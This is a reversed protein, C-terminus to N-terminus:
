REGHSTEGLTQALICLARHLRMRVTSLSIGLIQAAERYKLEEFRVLLLATRLEPPLALIAEHIRRSEEKEILEELPVPGSSPLAEISESDLQVKGWRNRCHDLFKNTAIAYLWTRPSSRAKFDALGRFVALFTEQLLDEALHPCGCLRYLYAYIGAAAQRYFLTFAEHDHSLPLALGSEEQAGNVPNEM